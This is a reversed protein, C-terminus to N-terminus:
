KEEQSKSNFFESLKNIDSKPNILILLERVAKTSSERLKVFDEVSLESKGEHLAKISSESMFMDSLWSAYVVQYVALRGKSLQIKEIPYYILAGLTNVIGAGGFM